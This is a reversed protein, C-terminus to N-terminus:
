PMSWRSRTRKWVQKRRTMRSTSSRDSDLKPLGVNRAPVLPALFRVEPEEEREPRASMPTEPSDTGPPIGEEATASLELPQAALRSNGTCQRCISCTTTALFHTVQVPKQAGLRTDLAEIIQEAKPSELSIPSAGGQM